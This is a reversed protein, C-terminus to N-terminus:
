DVRWVSVSDRRVSMSSVYHVLEHSGDAACARHDIEVRCVVMCVVWAGKINPGEHLQLIYHSLVLKSRITADKICKFLELMVEFPQCFPEFFKAFVVNEEVARALDLEICVM